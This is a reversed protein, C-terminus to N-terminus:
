MGKVLLGSIRLSASYSCGGRPSAVNRGRRESGPSPEDQRLGWALAAGVLPGERFSCGGRGPWRGGRGGLFDCCVKQAGAPAPPECAPLPPEASSANASRGRPQTGPLSKNQLKPVPQQAARGLRPTLRNTCGGRM